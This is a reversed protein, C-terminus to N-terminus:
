IDLLKEVPRKSAMTENGKGNSGSPGNGSGNRAGSEARTETSPGGKGRGRSGFMRKAYREVRDGAGPGKPPPPLKAVPAPPPILLDNLTAAEGAEQLLKYTRDVSKLDAGFGTVPFRSSVNFWRELGKLHMASTCSQITLKDEHELLPAM